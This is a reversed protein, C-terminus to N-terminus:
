GVLRHPRAPRGLLRADPLHAGAYPSYGPKKYFKAISAPDLQGADMIAPEADQALVGTISFLSALLLAAASATIKL